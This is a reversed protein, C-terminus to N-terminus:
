EIMIYKSLAMKVGLRYAIASRLSSNIGDDRALLAEDEKMTTARLAELSKDQDAKPLFKGAGGGERIRRKGLLTQAVIDFALPSPDAFGYDQLFRDNGAEGGGYTIHIPDGAKVTSGAKVKLEGGVRGTLIHVAGRDHNCMDLYPILLRCSPSGDDTQVTLVRSTILWVAWQLHESALPSGDIWRASDDFEKSFRTETLFRRAKTEEVVLPSQLAELAEDSFFDTSGLCDASGFGPLMRYYDRRSPPKSADSVVSCYDKLFQVAPLTPDGGEPGLNVALNSPINIIDSGKPIDRTALVGRLLDNENGISTRKLTDGADNEELYKYFDRTEKSRDVEVVSVGFGRVGSFSAKKKQKKALLVSGFRQPATKPCFAAVSIVLLLICVLIM